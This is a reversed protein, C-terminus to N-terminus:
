WNDKTKSRKFLHKVAEEDPWNDFCNFLLRIFPAKRRKYGYQSVTLNYFSYFLKIILSKDDSDCNIKQIPEKEDNLFGRQLFSILQEQTLYPEGNSNKRETLKVFHKYVVEMPLGKWFKNESHIFDIIFDDFGKSIDIYSSMSSKKGPDEDLILKRSEELMQTIRVDIRELPFIINKCITIFQIKYNFCAIQLWNAIIITFLNRNLWYKSASTLHKQKTVDIRGGFPEPYDSIFKNLTNHGMYNGFSHGLNTLYYIILDTKATKTMRELMNLDLEKRFPFVFKVRLIHPTNIFIESHEMAEEISMSNYLALCNEFAEFKM